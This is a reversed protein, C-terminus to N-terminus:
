RLERRAAQIALNLEVLKPSGEGAKRALARYAAEVVLLPSDAAVGLIEWWPRDPVAVADRPPPLARAGEVAAVLSYAGVEDVLRLREMTLSIARINQPLKKFRDCALVMLSQGRTIDGTALTFWLAAGPDDPENRMRASLNTTLEWSTLQTRQTRRQWRKVEAEITEVAQAVTYPNYRGDLREGPAIRPRGPPWAIPYPAPLGIDAM